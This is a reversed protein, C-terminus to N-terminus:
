ERIGRLELHFDRFMVLSEPEFRVNHRRFSVLARHRGIAVTQAKTSRRSFDSARLAAFNHNLASFKNLFPTVIMAQVFRAFLPIAINAM